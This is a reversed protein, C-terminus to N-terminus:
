LVSLLLLEHVLPHANINAAFISLSVIGIDLLKDDEAALAFM